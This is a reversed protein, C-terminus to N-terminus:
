YSVIKKLIGLGSSDVPSGRYIITLDVWLDTLARTYLKLSMEKVLDKEHFDM